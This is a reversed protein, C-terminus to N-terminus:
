APPNAPEAATSTSFFPRFPRSIELFASELNRVLRKADMLPRLTEPRRLSEQLKRASLPHLGFEIAMAEFAASDDAVLEHLGAATLLSAAVRSAFTSGPCTLLPLGATLADIATAHAGHNFADLFLDGCRMREINREPAVRDAFLLRAPDVGRAAAEWQLNTQVTPSDAIVWLISDPVAALIRMWSDFTPPDIKDAANFSCYVFRGAPLGWATRDPEATQAPAPPETAIMYPTPIRILKEAFDADCGPPAVVPDAILYDFAESGTTGPYLYSVQILAPRWAVVEPRGGALYSDLDVLIQIKAAAIREAMEFPALGRIEIFHDCGARIRQRYYSNDPLSYDFAYIEFFRRNFREYMGQTLRGYVSANFQHSLFGIRLRERRVPANDRISGLRRDVARAFQRSCQKAIALRDASTTPFRLSMFPGMPAPEDRDARHRCAQVIRPVNEQWGSWDCLYRRANELDVAFTLNDPKLAATKEYCEAAQSWQGRREHLSGLDHFATASNPNAAIAREFMAKAEDWRELDALANGCNVLAPAYDSKIALAKEFQLLATDPRGMRRHTEGFANLAQPYDPKLKIAKELAVIAEPLRNQQLCLGGLNCYAKEYAPAIKTAEVFASEAEKWKGADQLVLGLNNLPAGATPALMVGRRAAEVAENLRGAQRFIEAAHMQMEADDVKAEIAEKLKACAEEVMGKRFAIMGLLYKAPGNAPDSALVSRCTQEAVDLNGMAFASRADALLREQDNM